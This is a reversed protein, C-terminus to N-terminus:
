RFVCVTDSRHGIVIGKQPDTANGFYLKSSQVDTMYKFHDPTVPEDLMQERLLEGHEGPQQMYNGGYFDFIEDIAGSRGHDVGCLSMEYSMDYLDRFTLTDTKKEKYKAIIENRVATEDM